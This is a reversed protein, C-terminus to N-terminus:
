FSFLSVKGHAIYTSVCRLSVNYDWGQREQNEFLQLPHDNPDLGPRYDM